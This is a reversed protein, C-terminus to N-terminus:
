ILDRAFVLDTVRGANWAVAAWDPADFDIVATAATPYREFRADGPLAAVLGQAFYAIGPNHAIMMVSKTRAKRLEDILAAPEAHYLSDRFDAEPATDFAEAILSWTQRTRVSSSVLAQEPEYGRDALWIGVARASQEGRTNLPRDRDSMSRDAWSSKAHRTLILRLTM